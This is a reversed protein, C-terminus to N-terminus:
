KQVWFCMFVHKPTFLVWLVQRQLSIWEKVLLSNPSNLPVFSRTNKVRYSVHVQIAGTSHSLFCASVLLPLLALLLAQGAQHAGSCRTTNAKPMHQGQCGCGRHEPVQGARARAASIAPLTQQRFPPFVTRIKCAVSRYAEGHITWPRNSIKFYIITYM